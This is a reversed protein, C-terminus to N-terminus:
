PMSKQLEEQLEQILATLKAQKQVHENHKWKSLTRRMNKYVKKQAEVSLTDQSKQLSDTDTTHSTNAHDQNMLTRIHRLSVGFSSALYPMVAKEGKRLRGAKRTFSHDYTMLREAASQVQVSTLNRRKENEAIEKMLAQQTDQSADLEVDVVVPIKNWAEGELQHLQQYAHFRHAGAILCYNKDVYIPQLLGLIRISEMLSEVHKQNIPRIDETPRPKIQELPLLYTSKEKLANEEEVKLDIQASKRGSAVALAAASALSKRTKTKRAM